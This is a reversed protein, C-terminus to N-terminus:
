LDASNTAVSESIESEVLTSASNDYSIITDEDHSTITNEDHSTITDEDHGYDDINYVADDDYDDKFHPSSVLSVKVRSAKKM